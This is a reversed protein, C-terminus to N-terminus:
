PGIFKLCLKWRHVAAEFALIGDLSGSKADLNADLNEDLNEDLIQLVNVAQRCRLFEPCVLIFYLSTPSKLNHHRGTLAM